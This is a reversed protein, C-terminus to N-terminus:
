AQARSTTEQVAAPEKAPQTAPEKAPPRPGKAPLPTVIMSLMRGEFIPPREIKGADRLAEVVRKLLALGLEPHAMQRGRFVVSLKVKDGRALLNRATRVKYAMDHVGVSPRFRVEGIDSVRQGKRADKEKKAQEYRFKGYDMVRCVPPVATPAVEVLDVGREHALRLAQGTPLVGLQEGKEDIVRVEPVRIRENLRYEKVISRARGALATFGVIAYVSRAQM